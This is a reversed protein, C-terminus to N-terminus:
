IDSGEDSNNVVNWLHSTDAMLADDDVTIKGELIGELSKWPARRVPKVSALPRGRRTITLTDGRKAVGDLLALCKAKFETVTVTRRKM